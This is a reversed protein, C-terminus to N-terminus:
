NQRFIMAELQETAEKQMTPLVHSYVDLTLVISSHGLRESVVKPNIGVQLLLTATTHRLDYLRISTRLNTKKLIRKFHRTLNPPNLPTGIESAFVLNNNQWETGLRLRQENQKVKHKRLDKLTTTPLPVTRRSKATKPTSFHWGGGSRHWVIARQVTATGKEFDIDKWQLGLYEQVRMGTALAFSLLVGHKEDQLVTLFRISEDKSLVDMEKRVQKPLQVFKAVNRPLIDLEVTKKLASSLVSHAYRIRRPSYGKNQMEGYVKQIHAAKLDALKINGLPERIYLRMMDYYDRLTRYQLRPKAITELWFDLYENLTQKQANGLLGLDADRLMDNLVKQAEKKTGHITKTDYKRKGQSDRGIFVKLQWANGRKFIQGAM